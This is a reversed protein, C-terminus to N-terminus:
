VVKKEVPRHSKTLTGENGRAVITLAPGKKTEGDRYPLFHFVFM